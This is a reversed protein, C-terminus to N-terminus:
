ELFGGNGLYRELFVDSLHHVTYNHGNQIVDHMTQRQKKTQKSSGTKVEVYEKYVQKSGNLKYIAIFDSGRRTPIIKCGRQKYIQQVIQDAFDGKEKNKLIISKSKRVKVPQIFRKM